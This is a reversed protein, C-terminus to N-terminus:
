EYQLRLKIWSLIKGLKIVREFFWPFQLKQWIFKIHLLITSLKISCYNKIYIFYSKNWSTIAITLDVINLNFVM